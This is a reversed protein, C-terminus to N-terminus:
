QKRGDKKIEKKIDQLDHGCIEGYLTKKQQKVIQELDPIAPAASRGLAKLDDCAASMTHGDSGHLDGTLPPLLIASLKQKVSDDLLILLYGARHLIYKAQTTREYQEAHDLAAVLENIERLKSNKIDRELGLELDLLGRAEARLGDLASREEKPMWDYNMRAISGAADAAAARTEAPQATDHANAILKQLCAEVNSRLFSNAVSLLRNVTERSLTASRQDSFAAYEFLQTSAFAILPLAEGISRLTPLDPLGAGLTAVAASVSRKDYTLSGDFKISLRDNVLVEERSPGITIDQSRAAHPSIWLFATVFLLHRSGFAIM